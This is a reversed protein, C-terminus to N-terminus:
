IKALPRPGGMVRRASWIAPPKKTPKPTNTIARLPSRGVPLRDSGPEPKMGFITAVRVIKKPSTSTNRAFSLLTNAVSDHPSALCAANTAAIVAAAMANNSGSPKRVVLISKIKASSALLPVQQLLLFSL